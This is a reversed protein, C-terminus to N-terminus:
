GRQEKREKHLLEQKMWFLRFCWFRSVFFNEVFQSSVDFQGHIRMNGINYGIFQIIYRYICM